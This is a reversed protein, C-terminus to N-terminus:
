HKNYQLWTMKFAHNIEGNDLTHMYPTKYVDLIKSNLPFARLTESGVAVLCFVAMSKASHRDMLLPACYASHKTSADNACGINEMGKFNSHKKVRCKKVLM